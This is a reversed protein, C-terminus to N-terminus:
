NPGMFFLLHIHSFYYIVWGIHSGVPGNGESTKKKKKLTDAFLITPPCASQVSACSTIHIGRMNTCLMM